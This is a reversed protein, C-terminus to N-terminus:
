ARGEDILTLLARFERENGIGAGDLARALTSRGRGTRAALGDYTLGHRAKFDVLVDKIPRPDDIPTM